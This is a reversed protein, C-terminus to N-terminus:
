RVQCEGSTRQPPPTQSVCRSWFRRLWGRRLQSSLCQKFESAVRMVEAAEDATDRSEEALQELGAGGAAVALKVSARVLAGAAQPRTVIDSAQLVTAAHDVSEAAAELFQSRPMYPRVALWALKKAHRVLTAARDALDSARMLREVDDSEPPPSVLPEEM